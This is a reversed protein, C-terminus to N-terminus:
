EGFIEERVCVLRYDNLDINEDLWEGKSAKDCKFERCIMPRDAYIDCKREENNRFPCTMDVQALLFRHPNLNRRRVVRKIKRVEAETMPLLNSCCAGCNACEGNDTFNFTGNKMDELVDDFFGVRTGNKARLSM